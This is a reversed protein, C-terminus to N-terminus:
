GNRVINDFFEVVLQDVTDVNVSGNIRSKALEWNQLEQRGCLCDVSSDTIPQGESSPKDIPRMAGGEQM